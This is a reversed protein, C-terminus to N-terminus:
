DYFKASFFNFQGKFDRYNNCARYLLTVDTRRHLDCQYILSAGSRYIQALGLGAGAQGQKLAYEESRYDKSVHNLLRQRDLSGYQDSVSIGIFFGDFGVRMSIQDKGQLNRDHLRSTSSYIPKGFEDCPADFMANMLVEDLATGILNAVRGPVKGAILYQRVAEVAEQKQATHTVDVTQMEADLSMFVPLEQIGSAQNANVFRSFGAGCESINQTPRKLFTSFYPSRVLDRNSGLATESILYIQNPKIKDSFLGLKKQVIEEFQQLTENKTADLFMAFPEREIGFTAFEEVSYAVQVPAVLEGAVAAVFTADDPHDSLLIIKKSM